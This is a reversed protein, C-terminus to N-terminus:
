YNINKHCDPCLTELDDPNCLLESYILDIIENWFKIGKKHHVQVKQEFGKRVSAKVGCKQCSYNDRKIADSRERSVLFLKALSRKIKYRPTIM